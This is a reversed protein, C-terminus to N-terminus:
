IPNILKVSYTFIQHRWVIIVPKGVELFNSRKRGKKRIDSSGRKRGSIVAEAGKECIAVSQGEALYM